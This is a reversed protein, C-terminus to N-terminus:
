SSVAFCLAIVWGVGTWGLFFNLVLVSAFQRGRLLALFAPFFYLALLAM